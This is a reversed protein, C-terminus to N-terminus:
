QQSPNAATRSPQSDVNANKACENCKFAVFDRSGCRYCFNETRPASCEKFGHGARRCNFCARQEQERENGGASRNNNHMERANNQRVACVETTISDSTCNLPTPRTPECRQSEINQGHISLHSLADSVASEHVCRELEHLERSRNYTPRQVPRSTQTRHESLSVNSQRSHAHDVRRCISSLQALSTIEVAATAITYKQLMNEEVMCLKHQEDIPISLFRFLSQMENLYESFTETSKQRRNSINFLLRYDFKPPLFERKLESLFEVWSGFTDFRSRFWVRARGTLLHVVSSLMERDPVDEARQMMRLESLFDYLHVGNEEGSFSIRWQHVPVTRRSNRGDYREGRREDRHEEFDDFRDYAVRRHQADFEREFVERRYGEDRVARDYHGFRDRERQNVRAHRDDDRLDFRRQNGYDHSVFQRDSVAERVRQDNERTNVRRHENYADPVFRHDCVEERVPQRCREDLVEGRYSPRYDREMANRGRVNDRLGIHGRRDENRHQWVDSQADAESSSCSSVRSRLVRNQPQLNHRENGVAVGALSQRDFSAGINRPNHVGGTPTQEPRNSDCVIVGDVVRRNQPRFEAVRPNLVSQERQFPQANNVPTNMAVAEEVPWRPSSPNAVPQSRIPPASAGETNTLESLLTEARALVNFADVQEEPTAVQVRKLRNIVHILRSCSSNVEMMGADRTSVAKEIDKVINACNTLELLASTSGLRPRPGEIEGALERRLFERLCQTKQRATHMNQVGRLRLEYDLEDTKLYIPDM